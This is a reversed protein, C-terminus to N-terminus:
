SESYLRWLQNIKDEDSIINDVCVKNFQESTLKQDLARVAVLLDEDLKTLKPVDVSPAGVDDIKVEGTTMPTQPPQPAQSPKDEIKEGVKGIVSVKYMETPTSGSKDYEQKFVVSLPNGGMTRITDIHTNIQRNATVTFMYFVEVGFMYIARLIKRNKTLDPFLSRFIPLPINVIDDFNREKKYKDYLKGEKIPFKLVNGMSDKIEEKRKEYTSWITNEEYEDLNVLSFEVNKDNVYEPM